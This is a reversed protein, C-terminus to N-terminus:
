RARDPAALLEAIVARPRDTERGQDVDGVLALGVELDAICGEAGAPLPQEDAVAELV